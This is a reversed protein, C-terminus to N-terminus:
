ASVKRGRRAFRQAPAEVFLWSAGAVPLTAVWVAVVVVWLWWGADVFQVVGLAVFLQIVPFHYLYVGYSLDNKTGVKAVPEWRWLGGGGVLVFALVVPGFPLWWGVAVLGVCVIGVAGVVWWGRRGASRLKDEVGLSACVAGAFFAVPLGAIVGLNNAREGDFMFLFVPWALFFVGFVAFLAVTHSANFRRSLVTVVLLAVYCCFEPLLTWFSGDLGNPYPNNGLVGGITPQVILLGSNSVVYSVASDAGFVRYTDLLGAAQGILPAFVFAVTLLAVWFGPFLRFFRLRMFRGPSNRRVSSFLLFGSLAFFGGVAVDGFTAQVGFPVGFNWGLVAGGAHGSLVFVHQVIVLSALFLRLFGYSNRQHAPLSHEAKVLVSRGSPFGGAKDVM